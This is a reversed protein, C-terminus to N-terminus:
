QGQFRGYSDNVNRNRYNPHGYQQQSYESIFNAVALYSPICFESTLTYM